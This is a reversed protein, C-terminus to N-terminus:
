ALLEKIEAPSELRRVVAYQIMLNRWNPERGSALTWSPQPLYAYAPRGTAAFVGILAAAGPPTEPGSVDCILAAARSAADWDAAVAALDHSDHRRALTATDPMAQAIRRLVDDRTYPSPEVFVTGSETQLHHHPALDAPAASIALRVAEALAAHTQTRNRHEFLAFRDVSPADPPAGLTPLRVLHASLHALLQDPFPDGEQDPRSTHTIFDTTVAIVPIGSATAYGIEMCVGDDLSPGHLIAIMATLENLRGSDLEFLKLGKVDAVLDEENTDCFPLFVNDPGVEEAMLQACAAGLSRDHAAFLRHAIYYM